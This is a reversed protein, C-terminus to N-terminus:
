NCASRPSVPAERIASNTFFQGAICSVGTRNRPWSSGRSFLCTVWELLRPSGKHSLQYFFDVQLTPSRPKIGLNPLNGQLLSHSGVGTNHGPSNWPNYLGHPQLSNSVVSRSESESWKSVNFTQNWVVATFSIAWHLSNCSYKPKGTWLFTINVKHSYEM